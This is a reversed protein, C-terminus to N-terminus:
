KMARVEGWLSWLFSFFFFSFSEGGEATLAIGDLLFELLLDFGKGPPATAM